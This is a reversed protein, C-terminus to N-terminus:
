NYSCCVAKFFEETWTDGGHPEPDQYQSCIPSGDSRAYNKFTTRGCDLGIIYTDGAQMSTCSLDTSAFWIDRQEKNVKVCQKGLTACFSNGSQGVDFYSEACHLERSELASVRGGLVNTYVVSGIVIILVVALIAYTIKDGM